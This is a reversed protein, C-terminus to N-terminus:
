PHKDLVDKVGMSRIKQCLIHHDMTDITKKKDVMLM